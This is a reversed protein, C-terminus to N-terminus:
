KNNQKYFDTIENLKDDPFESLVFNFAKEIIEKIPKREWYAIAKIKEYTDNNVIITTRTYSYDNNEHKETIELKSVAKSNQFISDIGGTFNKKAM